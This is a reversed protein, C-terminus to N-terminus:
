SLDAARATETRKPVELELTDEASVALLDAIKVYGETIKKYEAISLLVHSLKGRETIFVPASRAAKKVKSVSRNFERSTITTQMLIYM